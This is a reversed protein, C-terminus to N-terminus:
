LAICHIFFWNWLWEMVSNSLCHNDEWSETALRVTECCWGLWHCQLMNSWLKMVKSLQTQKKKQDPNSPHVTPQHEWDNFIIGLVTIWTEVIWFLEFSKWVLFHWSQHTCRLHIHKFTQISNDSCMETSNPPFFLPYFGILCVLVLCISRRVWVWWLWEMGLHCIANLLHEWMTQQHSNRSKTINSGQKNVAMGVNASVFDYKWSKEIIIMMECSLTM